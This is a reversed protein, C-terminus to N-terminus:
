CCNDESVDMRQGKENHPQANADGERHLEDFVHEEQKDQPVGVSRVLNNKHNSSVDHHVYPVNMEEDRHQQM